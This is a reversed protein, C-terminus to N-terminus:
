RSVSTMKKPVGEGERERERERERTQGKRHGKM